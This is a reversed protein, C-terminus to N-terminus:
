MQLSKDYVNKDKVRQAKRQERGKRREDTM